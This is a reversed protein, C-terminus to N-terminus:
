GDAEVAIPSGEQEQELDKQRSALSPTAFWESKGDCHRFLTSAGEAEESRERLLLIRMGGREVEVEAQPPARGRCAGGGETEREAVEAGAVESGVGWGGACAAHAAAEEPAAAEESAAAEEPAAGEPEPGCCSAARAGRAEDPVVEEAVEKVKGACDGAVQQAM